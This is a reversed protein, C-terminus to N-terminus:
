STMGGFSVYFVFLRRLLFIGGLPVLLFRYDLGMSPFFGDVGGGCLGVHGSLGLRRLGIRGCIWEMGLVVLLLSELEDPALRRL